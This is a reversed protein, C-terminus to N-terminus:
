RSRRLRAIHETLPTTHASDVYEELRTIRNDDCWARLMCPAEFSPEDARMVHQQVFGDETVTVRIDEYRLGRVHRFMWLLTRINRERDQEARDFTHWVAVSPHYVTRLGDGDGGAVAAMFRRALARTDHASM